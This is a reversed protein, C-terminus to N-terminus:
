IRCDYLVVQGRAILRGVPGLEWTYTGNSYVQEPGSRVLPLTHFAGDYFIRVQSGLYNVVLTGGQCTYTLSGSPAPQVPQVPQVPPTPQIPPAVAALSISLRTTRGAQISVRTRFPSYGSRRLEVTYSGPSLALSLPTTGLVRGDVLVEAGRPTSDVALIGTPPPSATLTLSLETTQGPRITFGARLPDFGSRRLELQYSGPQLELVLPTTGVVRGDILVQAGSPSSRVVLTGTAPPLQGAIFYAEDTVWDASPLPTVVISLARALNDAGQLRARGTQIDIIESVDLPRRSAVALVRDQGAPGEVTFRYRAGPGPFTRVEGAQLFNQQEFANPLIPNIEGTARVSFLYVYAPQTVSVSIFIPEGFRYVPNGTKSPDKDVWVRVQFGPPPTPNVIIGQPRVQGAALGLLLVLLSLLRHM